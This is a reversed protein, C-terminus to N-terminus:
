IIAIKGKYEDTPYISPDTIKNLYWNKPFITFSNNGIYYSLLSFTSNSLIKINCDSLLRLDQISSGTNIFRCNNVFNINLEKLIKSQIPSDTFIKIEKIEKENYFDFIKQM